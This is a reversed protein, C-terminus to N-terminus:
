SLGGALPDSGPSAANSRTGTLCASLPRELNAAIYIHNDLGEQEARDQSLEALKDARGVLGSCRGFWFVRGSCTCLRVVSRLGVGTLVGVGGWAWLPTGWLLPVGLILVVRDRGWLDM